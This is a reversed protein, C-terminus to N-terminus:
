LHLCWHSRMTLKIHNCLNVYLYKNTTDAWLYTYMCKKTRNVSFDLLLSPGLTIFGVLMLIKIELTMQLQLFWPKDSFPSIRPSPCSFCLFYQLMQLVLFSSSAKLFNVSVWLSLLIGFPCLTLQFLKWNGFSSSNSCFFFYFWIQKYCLNYFLIFIDTLWSQYLKIFLYTFSPSCIKWAFSHDARIPTSHLKESRLTSQICNYEELSSLMFLLVFLTKCNELQFFGVSVTEALHDLDVDGSIIHLINNTSPITYLRHSNEITYECNKYIRFNNKFKM